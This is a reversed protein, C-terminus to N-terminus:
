FEDILECQKDSHRSDDTGETSHRTSVVQM